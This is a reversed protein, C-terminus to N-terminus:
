ETCYEFLAYHATAALGFEIGEFKNLNRSRATTDGPSGELIMTSKGAVFLHCTTVERLAEPRDCLRHERSCSAPTRDTPPMPKFITTTPANM